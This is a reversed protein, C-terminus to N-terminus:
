GGSLIMGVIAKVGPLIGYAVSALILLIGWKMAWRLADIFADTTIRAYLAARREAVDRQAKIWPILEQMTTHQEAHIEPLVGFAAVMDQRARKHLETVLSSIFKRTDEDWVFMRPEGNDSM